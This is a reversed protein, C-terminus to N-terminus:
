LASAVTVMSLKAALFGVWYFMFPLAIWLSFSLKTSM